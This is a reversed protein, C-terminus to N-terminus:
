SKTVKITKNDYITYEKIIDGYEDLFIIRKDINYVASITM